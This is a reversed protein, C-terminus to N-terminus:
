VNLEVVNDIKEKSFLTIALSIAFLLIEKILVKSFGATLPRVGVLYRPIINAPAAGWAHNWSSSSALASFLTTMRVTTAGTCVFQEVGRTM